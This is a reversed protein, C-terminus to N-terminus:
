VNEIKYITLFEETHLNFDVPGEDGYHATVMLHGEENNWINIISGIADDGMVGFWCSEHKDPFTLNEPHLEDEPDEDGWIDFTVEARYGTILLLREALESGNAALTRKETITKM